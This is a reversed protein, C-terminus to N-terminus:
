EQTNLGATMLARSRRPGLRDVDNMLFPKTFQIQLGYWAHIFAKTYRHKFDDTPWAEPLEGDIASAMGLSAEEHLVESYRDSNEMNFLMPFMQKRKNYEDVMVSKVYASRSAILHDWQTTSMSM